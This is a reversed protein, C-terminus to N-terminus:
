SNSKPPPILIELDTFLYHDPTLPPFSNTFDLQPFCTEFICFLDCVPTKITNFYSNQKSNKKEDEIYCYFNSELLNEIDDCYVYFFISDSTEVKDLIDYMNGNYRFENKNKWQLCINGSEIDSRKFSLALVNEDSDDEEISALVYIRNITILQQYIFVYGGASLTLLLGVTVAIIKTSLNGM